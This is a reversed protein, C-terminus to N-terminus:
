NCNYKYYLTIVSGWYHRNDHHLLQTVGSDQFRSDYVGFTQLHSNPDFNLFVDDYLAEEVADLVRLAEMYSEDWTRGTGVPAVFLYLKFERLRYVNGLGKDYHYAENTEIMIAPLDPKHIAGPPAIYVQRLEPITELAAKLNNLLTETCSM